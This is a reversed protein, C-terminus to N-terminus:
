KTPSASPIRKINLGTKITALDNRIAAFDLRVAALDQKVQTFTGQATPIDETVSVGALTTKDNALKTNIDTLKSNIDSLATQVTASSSSGVLTTLQPTLQNLRNAVTQLNNTIISLRIKPEYIAYVHYSTVISQADTLATAPDTDAQIKTKLAQLNSITTQIDTAFNTKDTSQLRTDNNVRTLLVNLASVRDDIMTAARTQIRTLDRSTITPAATPHTSIREEIATIRAPNIAFATRTLGAFALSTILLILLQKKM